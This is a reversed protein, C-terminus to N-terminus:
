DNRVTRHCEVTADSWRRLEELSPVVCFRVYRRASGLYIRGSGDEMPGVVVYCPRRQDNASWTRASFCVRRSDSEDGAASTIPASEVGGSSAAASDSEAREAIFGLSGITLYFAVVLAIISREDRTM